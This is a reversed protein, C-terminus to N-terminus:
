SNRFSFVSGNAQFLSASVVRVTLSVFVNQVIPTFLDLTNMEFLTTEVVDISWRPIPDLRLVPLAHTYWWHLCPFEKPPTILM